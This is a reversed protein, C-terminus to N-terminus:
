TLQAAAADPLQPSRRETTLTGVRLVPVTLPPLGMRTTVNQVFERWYPWANFLGNIDAFEELTEKDFGKVDEGKYVLLFSAGIDLVSKKPDEESPAHLRFRAFVMILPSEGSTEVKASREIEYSKKGKIAEPEVHSTSDILRVDQLQVSNAVAVWAPKEVVMKSRAVTVKHSVRKTM